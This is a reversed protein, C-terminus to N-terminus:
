RILTINGKVAISEGTENTYDLIYFYVDAPVAENHYNGNWGIAPSRSEFILMGYKNYVQLLYNTLGLTKPKFEDNLGDNNPTFASPFFTNSKYPVCVTNSRSELLNAQRANIYYCKKLWDNEIFNVDAYTTNITSGLTLFPKSVDSAYRADYLANNFGLYASWNLIANENQQNVVHLLVPQHPSSWLSAMGCTDIAKVRYSFNQKSADIPKDIYFTDNLTQTLIIKNQQDKKEILYKITYPKSQWTIAVATDGNLVSAMYMQLNLNTGFGQSIKLSASDKTVCGTSSTLTQYIAYTGVNKFTLIPSAVSDSLGSSTTYSYKSVLGISKDTIKVQAPICAFSDCTFGPKPAALINVKNQVTISDTCFGNSYILQVPFIGSKTYTHKTNQLTDSDGDGFRWLWKSALVYQNGQKIQQATDTLTSDKFTFALWQCGATDTLNIKAHPRKLVPISDAMSRKFGYASYALMTFRLYGSKLVPLKVTDGQVTDKGNNYVWKFTKYLSDSKNYVSVSDKCANNYYGFRMREPIYTTTPMAFWPEGQAKIAWCKLNCAPYKKDPFELYSIYHNKYGAPQQKSDYIVDRGGSLYLKGDPGLAMGPGLDCGGTKFGENRNNIVRAASDTGLAYLDVQVLRSLENFSNAYCYRRVKFNDQADCACFFSAYLFSDNASFLVNYPKFPMLSQQSNVWYNYAFVDNLSTYKIIKGTKANFEYLYSTDFPYLISAGRLPSCVVLFRGSKSVAFNGAGNRYNQVSGGQPASAFTNKLSSKIPNATDLGASDFKFAWLSDSGALLLWYSKSPVNSVMNIKGYFAPIQNLKLPININKDIVKGANNNLGMNIIAYYHVLAKNITFEEYFFYYINTDSVSQKILISTASSDRFDNNCMLNNGNDMVQGNGQYIANGDTYFLVEGMKNCVTAHAHRYGPFNSSITKPPFSSFDLGSQNGFYWINNYQGYCISTSLFTSLM